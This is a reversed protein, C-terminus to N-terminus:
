GVAETVGAGLLEELARELETLEKALERVSEILDALESRTEDQVM